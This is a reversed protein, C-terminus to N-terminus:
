RSLCINSSKEFIMALIQGKLPQYDRDRKNKLEIARNIIQRLEDSSLDLLSTFHRPNM